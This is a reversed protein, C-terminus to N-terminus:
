KILTFSEYYIYQIIGHEWEEVADVTYAAAAAAAHQRYQM